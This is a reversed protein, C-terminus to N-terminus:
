QGREGAEHASDELACILDFFKLELAQTRELLDEVVLDWASGSMMEQIGQVLEDSGHNLQLIISPNFTGHDVYEEIVEITAAFISRRVETSITVERKHWSTWSGADEDLQVIVQARPKPIVPRMRM